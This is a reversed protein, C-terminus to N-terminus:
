SCVYGKEIANLVNSQLVDIEAIFKSFTLLTNIKSNDIEIM